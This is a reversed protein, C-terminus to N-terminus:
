YMSECERHFDLSVNKMEVEAAAAWKKVGEWEEGYLSILYFSHFVCPSFFYDEDQSLEDYQRVIIAQSPPNSFCEDSSHSSLKSTEEM